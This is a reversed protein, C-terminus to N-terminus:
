LRCDAISSRCQRLTGDTVEVQVAPADEDANVEVNGDFVALDFVVGPDAGRNWGDLVCGFMARAHDQSRMQASRLTLSHLFVAQTGYSFMQRSQQGLRDPESVVTAAFRCGCFDHGQFIAFNQQQFVEAKM